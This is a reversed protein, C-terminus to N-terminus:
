PCPIKTSGAPAAAHCCIRLSVPVVDSEHSKTCETAKPGAPSTQYPVTPFPQPSESSPPRVQCLQVKRSSPGSHCYTAGAPMTKRPSVTHIPVASPTCIVLSSPAWQVASTSVTPGRARPGASV